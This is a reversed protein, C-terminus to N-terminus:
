GHIETIRILEGLEDAREIVRQRHHDIDHAKVTKRRDPTGDKARMDFVVTSSRDDPACWDGHVWHNRSRALKALKDIGQLIAPKDFDEPQWEDAIAKLFKVRAEFTPLRHYGDQAMHITMGSIRALAFILMQDAHAWAVIMNGLAAAIEPAHDLDKLTYYM